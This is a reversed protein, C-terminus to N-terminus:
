NRKSILKILQRSMGQNTIIQTVTDENPFNALAELFFAKAKQRNPELFYIPALYQSILPDNLFPTIGKIREPAVFEAMKLVKYTDFDEVDDPLIGMIQRKEAEWNAFCYDKNERLLKLIIEIDIKELLAINEELFSVCPGLAKLYYRIEQTSHHLLYQYVNELVILNIREDMNKLNSIVFRLEAILSSPFFANIATLIIQDQTKKILDNQIEELIAEQRSDEKEFIFQNKYSITGHTFTLKTSDFDTIEERFLNLNHDRFSGSLYM